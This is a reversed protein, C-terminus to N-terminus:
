ATNAKKSKDETKNWRGEEKEKKKYLIM